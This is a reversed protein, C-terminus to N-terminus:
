QKSPIAPSAAVFRKHKMWLIFAAELPKTKAPTMNAKAILWHMAQFHTTLRRFLTEGFPM